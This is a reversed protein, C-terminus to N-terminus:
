TNIFNNYHDTQKKVFYDLTKIGTQDKSRHFSEYKETFVEPIYVFCSSCFMCAVYLGGLVPKEIGFADSAAKTGSRRGEAIM